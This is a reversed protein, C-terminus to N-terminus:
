NVQEACNQICQEAVHNNNHEISKLEPSQDGGVSSSSKQEQQSVEVAYIGCFLNSILVASLLWWNLQSGGGLNIRKRPLHSCKVVASSSTSSNASEGKKRVM